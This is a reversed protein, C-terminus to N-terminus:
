QYRKLFAQANSRVKANPHFHVVNDCLVFLEYPILSSPKDTQLTAVFALLEFGLAQLAEDCVWDPNVLLLLVFIEETITSDLQSRLSACLHPNYPIMQGDSKKEPTEQLLLRCNVVWCMLKLKTEPFLTIDKEALLGNIMSMYMHPTTLHDGHQSTQYFNFFHPHTLFCLAENLWEVPGSLDPHNSSKSNHALYSQFRMRQSYLDPNHPADNNYHFDHANSLECLRPLTPSNPANQQTWIQLPQLLCCPTFCAYHTRFINPHHTSSLIIQLWCRMNLPQYSHCSTVTSFNSVAICTPVTFLPLCVTVVKLSILLIHFISKIM